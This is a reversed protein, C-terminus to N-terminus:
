GLPHYCFEKENSDRVMYGSSSPLGVIDPFLALDVDDRQRHFCSSVQNYHFWRDTTLVLQSFNKLSARTSRIVVELTVPPRFEQNAVLSRECPSPITLQMM